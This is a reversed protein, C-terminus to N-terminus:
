HKRAVACVAHFAHTRANKVARNSYFCIIHSQCDRGGRCRCAVIKNLLINLGKRADSLVKCFRGSEGNNCGDAHQRKAWDIQEGEAQTGHQFLRSVAIQERQYMGHGQLLVHGHIVCRVHDPFIRQELCHGRGLSPDDHLREGRVAM